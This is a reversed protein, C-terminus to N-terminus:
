FAAREKYGVVLLTPYQYSIKRPNIWIDEQGKPFYYKFVINLPEFLTVPGDNHDVNIKLDPSEPIIFGASKICEYEKYAERTTPVDISHVIYGGEKVTRFMDSYVNMRQSAPVHELVSISFVLDFYSEPLEHSQDGLLGRVFRTNQRRSGAEAFKEESYFGSDDIMWYEHSQAFNDAFFTSYGAGVELMAGPAIESIKQVGFLNGM